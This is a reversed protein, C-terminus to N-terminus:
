LLGKGNAQTSTFYADHFKYYGEDGGQERACNAAVAAQTAIPDHFSLPLDKFVMKVEGTDIYKASLAPYVEQFHRQCFPCEYDSFEIMVIKADKNGKVADDGLTVNSYATSLDTIEPQQGLKAVDNVAVLVKAEDNTKFAEIVAEFSEMPYAGFISVAKVTGDGSERGIFFAPTGGAGLAQAENADNKIEADDMKAVCENLKDGDLGVSKALSAYKGYPGDFESDGGTDKVDGNASNANKNTLFPLQNNSYLVSASVLIGAIIIAVPTSVGRLNKNHKIM